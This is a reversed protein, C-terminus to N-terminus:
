PLAKVRKIAERELEEGAYGAHELSAILRELWADERFFLSEPITFIKANSREGNTENGARRSSGLAIAGEMTLGQKTIRSYLTSPPIETFAAWEFLTLSKGLAKHRKRNRSHDVKYLVSNIDDDILGGKTIRKKITSATIGAKEAIDAINLYRGKYLYLKFRGAVVMKAKGRM